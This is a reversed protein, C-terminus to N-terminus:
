KLMKLMKSRSLAKGGMVASPMRGVGVARALADAGQVAPAYEPAFAPVLVKGVDLAGRAIKKLFSVFGQWSLAGGYVNEGAHYKLPPQLKAAFVDKEDLVGLTQVCRNEGISAVGEQVFLINLSTSSYTNASLNTAQATLQFNFKGRLGPAQNPKLPYDTGFAICIVSGVDNTFQRWSENSGNRVSMQYLDQQTALSMIVPRNDFQIQINTIGFYVDSSTWSYLSDNPGVWVYIRNPVQNLTVTNSLYQASSGPASSASNQTQVYNPMYYSYDVQKPISQSLEPTIYNLLLQASVLNATVSSFTSPSTSDHSWLSGVLGSLAGTGRGGLIMNVDLTNVGIFACEEEHKGFLFPSCYIPETVTMTVIATDGPAGGHDNRTILCGIFGGRPCQLVNDGYGRLPSRNFGFGNSYAQFQDLMSPTMSQELDQNSPPNQYRNLGNWFLGSNQNFTTGNISVSEVTVVNALPTARPADYYASGAGIGPATPLGAAQLLTQTAGAGASTGIFTLQWVMQKYARRNLFTGGSPPNIGPWSIQSNNVAAVPYQRFNNENGSSLVGYQHRAAANVDVRPDIVHVTNLDDLGLSM